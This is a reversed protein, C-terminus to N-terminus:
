LIKANRGGQESLHAFPSNLKKSLEWEQGASVCIM